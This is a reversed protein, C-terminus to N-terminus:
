TKKFKLTHWVWRRGSMIDHKIVMTLVNRDKEPEYHCEYVTEPEETVPHFKTLSFSNVGTEIMDVENCKFRETERNEFCLQLTNWFIFENVTATQIASDLDGPFYKLINFDGGMSEPIETKPAANITVTTKFAFALFVLLIANTNSM